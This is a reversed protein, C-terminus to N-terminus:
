LPISIFPLVCFKKMNKKQAQERTHNAVTIAFASKELTVSITAPTPIGGSYICESLSYKQYHPAEESIFSDNTHTGFNLEWLQSNRSSQQDRREAYQSNVQQELPEQTCQSRRLVEQRHM